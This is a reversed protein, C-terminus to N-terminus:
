DELEVREGLSISYHPTEPEGWEPHASDERVEITHALFFMDMARYGLSFGVVLLKNKGIGERGLSQASRWRRIRKEWYPKSERYEEKKEGSAIMSYWKGKLVLPLVACESRKLERM